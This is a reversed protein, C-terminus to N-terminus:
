AAPPGLTTITAACLASAVSRCVLHACLRLHVDRSLCSHLFVYSRVASSGDARLVTEEESLSVFEADIGVMKPFRGTVLEEMTAPEFTRKHSQRSSSLSVDNSFVSATIPQMPAPNPACAAIDTRVYILVCPARCRCSASHFDIADHLTSWSHAFGNVLVWRGSPDLTHLIIHSSVSGDAAPSSFICSLVQALKYVVKSSSEQPPPEFSRRLAVGRSTSSSGPLTYASFEDPIWGETQWRGLESHELSDIGSTVAFVPSLSVCSKIKRQSKYDPPKCTACWARINVNTLLSSELLELFAPSAPKPSAAKASASPAPPYLLRFQYCRSERSSQERCAYCENTELLASGFLANPAISPGGLGAIHSDTQPILMEKNLQELVFNYFKQMRVNLNASSVSGGVDNVDILALASAEPLLRLARVFNTAHVNSGITPSPARHASDDRPASNAPKAAAESLMHM